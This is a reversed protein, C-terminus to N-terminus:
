TSSELERKRDEWYKENFKYEREGSVSDTYEAFYIPIYAVEKEEIAITNARQIEELRYKENSALKINNDELAKRDPRLRSDTPPLVAELEKTLKNMDKVFTSLGYHADKTISPCKWLVEVKNTKINRMQIYETWKGAIEIAKTGETDAVYGEIVGYTSETLKKEYYELICREKTKKNTIISKGSCDFYLINDMTSRAVVNPREITYDEKWKKL